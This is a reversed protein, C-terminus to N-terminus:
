DRFEVDEVAEFDKKIVTKHFTVAVSLITLTILFLTIYKINSM